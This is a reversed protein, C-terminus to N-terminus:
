SQYDSSAFSKIKDAYEQINNLELYTYLMEEVSLESALRDSEKFKLASELDSQVEPTPQAELISILESEMGFIGEQDLFTKLSQTDIMAPAQAEPPNQFEQQNQFGAELLAKRIQSRLKNM